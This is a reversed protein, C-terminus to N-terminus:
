DSTVGGRKVGGRGEVEGGEKCSSGTWKRTPQVDRASTGIRARQGGTCASKLIDQEDIRNFRPRFHWVHSGRSIRKSFEVASWVVEDLDITIAPKDCRHIIV